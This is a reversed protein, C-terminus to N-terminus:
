EGGQGLAVASHPTRSFDLASVPQSRPEMHVPFVPVPPRLYGRFPLFTSVPTQPLSFKPSPIGKSSSIQARETGSPSAQNRLIKPSSPVRGCSGEASSSSIQVRSLRPINLEGLNFFIKRMCVNCADDSSSRSSLDSPFSLAESSPGKRKSLFCLPSTVGLKLSPSM